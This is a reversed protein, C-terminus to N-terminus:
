PSGCTARAQPFLLSHPSFVPPPPHSFAGRRRLSEAHACRFSAGSCYWVDGFTVNTINIMTVNGCDTCSVQIVYDGGPPMPPLLAKWSPLPIGWPTFSDMNYPPCVASPCPRVGWGDGFPQLTTNLGAPITAVPTSGGNSLVTVTVSTSPTSVNLPLYGYVAAQAPARQLVMWSGFAADFTFTLQPGPPAATGVAGLALAPLLLLRRAM